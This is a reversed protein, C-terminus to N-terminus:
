LQIPGAAGLARKCDQEIRPSHNGTAQLSLVDMRTARKAGTTDVHFIDLLELKHSARGRESRHASDIM